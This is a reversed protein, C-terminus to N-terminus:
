LCPKVEHIMALYHLPSLTALSSSVGIFCIRDINYQSHFNGFYSWIFDQTLSFYNGPPVPCFTGQILSRSLEDLWRSKWYVHWYTVAHRKFPYKQHLAEWEDVSEVAGTGFDKFSLYTLCIRAMQLTNTEQDICFPALEPNTTPNITSLYERVTFHALEFGEPSERILSSCCKSVEEKSPISEEDLTDDGLNVSIAECLQSCLLKPANILWM